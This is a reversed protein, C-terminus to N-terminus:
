SILSLDSSVPTKHSHMIANNEGGGNKWGRKEDSVVSGTFSALSETMKVRPYKNLPNTGINILFDM